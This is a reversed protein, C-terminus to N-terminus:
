WINNLANPLIIENHNIENLPIGVMQQGLEKNCLTGNRLGAYDRYSSYYWDEMKNVLGAKVPNQHIYYFYTTAYGEENLKSSDSVCKSKTNQQILNGTRNEQKNIGKTYASLLLRMGESLVNRPIQLDALHMEAREDAHILFHFHNPMLVYALIDCHPMIYKRVKGLFYIYNDEKFFIVQKDNGRNYIHYTNGAFFDM